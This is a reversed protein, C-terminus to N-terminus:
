SLSAIVSACASGNRVRNFQLIWQGCVWAEVGISESSNPNGIWGMRNGNLVQLM